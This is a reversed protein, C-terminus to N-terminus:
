LNASRFSKKENAFLNLSEFNLEIFAGFGDFNM